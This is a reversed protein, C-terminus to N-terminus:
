QNVAIRFIQSTMQFAFSVCINLLYKQETKAHFVSSLVMNWCPLLISGTGICAQSHSLLAGGTLCGSIQLEPYVQMWCSTLTIKWDTLRTHLNWVGPRISVCLTNTTQNNQSHPCGLSSCVQQSQEPELCLSPLASFLFPCQRWWRWKVFAPPFHIKSLPLLTIINYHKINGHFMQTLLGRCKCCPCIRLILVAHMLLILPQSIPRLIDNKHTMKMCSM